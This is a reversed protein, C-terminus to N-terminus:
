RGAAALRRLVVHQWAVAFFRTIKHFQVGIARADFARDGLTHARASQTSRPVASEGLRMQVVHQRGGCEVAEAEAIPEGARRFGRGLVRTESTEEGQAGLRAIAANVLLISLTGSGLDQVSAALFSFAPPWSISRVRGPSKIV